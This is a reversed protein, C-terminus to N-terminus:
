RNALPGSAVAIATAKKNDASRLAKYPRAFAGGAKLWAPMKALDIYAEQATTYAGYIVGITQKPDDKVVFLRLQAPDVVKNASPIFSELTAANSAPISRLQIFWQSDTIHEMDARSAVLRERALPGIQGPIPAFRAPDGSATPLANVPRVASPSSAPTQPSGARLAAASRAKGSPHESLSEAPQDEPLPLTIAAIPVDAKEEGPQLLRWGLLLVALLLAGGGLGFLLGRGPMRYSYNADRIAAVVHKDTITHTNEAFAALLTKDALINVRRTLGKSARTILNLVGSGTFLDPGKYGAARLRFHLYDSIQHHDLPTLFFSQTIRERLSRMAREELIEDLEPQGFLVIQMLKRTGTELNSLLRVQDLSERPMAHAEDIIAIVRRGEGYLGILRHEIQRLLGHGDATDIELEHAVTAVLESPSLSPNAIYIILAEPPLREILMRCLMTKGTGVEGSVRIIGEDNEVAFLLAELLPGRQAGSYFYETQPTIRFPAQQLGFHEHYM